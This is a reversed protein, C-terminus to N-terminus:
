LIFLEEPYKELDKLYIALKNAKQLRDLKPLSFLKKEHLLDLKVIARIYCKKNDLDISVFSVYQNPTIRDFVEKDYHKTKGNGYQFIWSVGYKEGQKLDQTKVHLNINPAKLDFDWSKNKADYIQFDPSSLEPFKDKLSQYTAIEGLKGILADRERKEQNFQSRSAYYSTDVAESFYKSFEFEEPTINYEIM